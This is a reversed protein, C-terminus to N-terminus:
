IWIYHADPLLPAGLISGLRIPYARNDEQEYRYTRDPQECKFAWIRNRKSESNESDAHEQGTDDNRDVCRKQHAWMAFSPWQREITAVPARELRLVAHMTVVPEDIGFSGHLLLISISKPLPHRVGRELPRTFSLTGLGFRQLQPTAKRRLQAKAAM